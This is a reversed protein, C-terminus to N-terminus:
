KGLAPNIFVLIAMFVIEDAKRIEPLSLEVISSM